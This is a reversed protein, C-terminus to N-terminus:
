KLIGLMHLIGVMTAIVGLLKLAGNMMAVHKEIPVIKAELMDSRKIHYVLSQHQAGLTVDISALHENSDDLKKEIRELRRDDAM